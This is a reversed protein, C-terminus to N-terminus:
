QSPPALPLADACTSDVSRSRLGARVVVREVGDDGTERCARRCKIERAPWRGDVLQIRGPTLAPEGYGDPFRKHREGNLQHPPEVRGRPPHRWGSTSAAIGPVLM